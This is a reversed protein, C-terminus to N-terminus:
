YFAVKRSEAFDLGKQKSVMRETDLDSKNGVIMTIIDNKCFNDEILSVTSIIQIEKDLQNFTDEKTIDYVVIAAASGKYFIKM